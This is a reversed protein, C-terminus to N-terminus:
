IQKWFLDGFLHFEEGRLSTKLGVGFDKLGTGGIGKPFGGQPLQLLKDWLEPYGM